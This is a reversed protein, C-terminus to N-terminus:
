NAGARVEESPISLSPDDMCGIFLPLNTGLDVVAYVFPSDLRLELPEETPMASGCLIEAITSAAAETGEENVG